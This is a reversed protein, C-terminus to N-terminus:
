KKKSVVIYISVVVLLHIVAWLQDYWFAFFQVFFISGILAKKLDKHFGLHNKRFYYYVGRLTLLGVVISSIMFGYFAFPNSIAIFSSLASIFIFNLSSSIIFIVLLPKYIFNKNIAGFYFKFVEDSIKKILPKSYNKQKHTKLFNNILIKLDDNENVNKLYEDIQVKEVTDLDKLIADKLKELANLQYVEMPYSTQSNLYKIFLYIFIFLLYIIAITPQYFYNNDSTIFKGLEDIFAGFGIGGIIASASKANTDLFLLSVFLAILMLLGGWLMHAIHLGNGGIQPFGTLTLYLRIILLSTVSSILFYELLKISELNISTRPILTIKM